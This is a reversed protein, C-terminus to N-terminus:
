AGHVELLKAMTAGDAKGTVTLGHELQFEEIALRRERPDAADETASLYGLNALRADLGSLADVPNLTGILVPTAQGRAVLTAPGLRPEIKAAIEGQDTTLLENKAGSLQLEVDEASVPAGDYNQLVLHLKLRSRSVRFTHLQGTEVAVQRAARDPITVRDGPLLVNPNRKARLEANDPHKWVGQWGGFGYQAAISAMHDGLVVEHILPM